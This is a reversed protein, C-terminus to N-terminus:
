REVQLSPLLLFPSSPEFVARRGKKGEAMLGDCDVWEIDEEGGVSAGAM